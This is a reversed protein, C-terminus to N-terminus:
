GIIEDPRHIGRRWQYCVPPYGLLSIPQTTRDRRDQNKHAARKQGHRMDTPLKCAASNTEHPQQHQNLYLRDEVFGPTKKTHMMAQKAMQRNPPLGEPQVLKIGNNNLTVFGIM